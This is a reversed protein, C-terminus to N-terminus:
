RRLSELGPLRRGALLAAATAGSTTIHDFGAVVDEGAQHAALAAAEDGAISFARSRAIATAIARTGLGHGRAEGDGLSGVWLVTAARDIASSFAQVTSPGLDRALMGHPVADVSTVRVDGDEAVAGVRVDTPLLVKVGRQEAQALITRAFPVRDDEVRHGHPAVGRAALFTGAIAGGVVLTDARRVLTELLGVRDAIRAGGIIATLPRDPGTVLKGLARVERQLLAGAGRERMMRPLAHVSAHAGLCSGFADNVYVDCLEALQRAFAEDDREEGAHRRLNELLCIQGDRLDHIVKRPADGVCDDPLHVEYGSVEALRAGAPENSPPERKAAAAPSGASPAHAHTAVVVRAGAEVLTRLTPLSARLRADDLARAAPKGGRLDFDVRVLVRQRGLELEELPTIGALTTM